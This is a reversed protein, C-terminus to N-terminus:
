VRVHTIRRLWLVGLLMMTLLVRVMSIGIPDQWLPEMFPRNFTFILLFLAFPMLSLFWASLRGEATLVRVRSHLKLRERTLRALNTLAETLNGGAERQVLVAVVFYRLDMLPVRQELGVLARDLPVGFNAEEHTLRLEGALPDSLEEGAMQLASSFAHGAKLARVILDLADPLQREIARLRRVRQRATWAIPVGGALLAALLAMWTPAHMLVQTALLALSGTMVTAALLHSPHWGTGSQQMWLTFRGAGQWRSLMSEILPFRSAKRQRLLKPNNESAHGSLRGAIHGAEPGRYTRWVLYLGELLLLVAVLVLLALLQPSNPQFM